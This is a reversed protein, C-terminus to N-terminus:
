REREANKQGFVFWLATIDDGQKKLYYLLTTSDLGGSFLLIKKMLNCQLKGFDGNDNEVFDCLQGM